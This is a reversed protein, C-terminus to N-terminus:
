FLWIFTLVKMSCYYMVEETHVCCAHMNSNPAYHLKSMCQLLHHGCSQYSDMCTTAALARGLILASCDSISPRLFATTLPLSSLLCTVPRRGGEVPAFVSSRFAFVTNRAQLQQLLEQGEVVYGFM